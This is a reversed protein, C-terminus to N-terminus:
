ANNQDRGGGCSFIAGLQLKKRSCKLRSFMARTRTRIGKAHQWEWGVIGARAISESVMVVIRTTRLRYIQKQNWISCKTNLNRSSYVTMRYKFPKRRLFIKVCPLDFYQHESTQSLLIFGSFAFISKFPVQFWSSQAGQM